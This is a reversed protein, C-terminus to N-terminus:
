ALIVSAQSAQFPVLLALPVYGPGAATAADQAEQPASGFHAFHPNCAACQPALTTSPHVALSGNTSCAAWRLGWTM